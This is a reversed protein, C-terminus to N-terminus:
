AVVMGAFVVRVRQSLNQKSLCTYFEMLMVTRYEMFMVKRRFSELRPNKRLVYWYESVRTHQVCRHCLVPTREASQACRRDVERLILGSSTCSRRLAPSPSSGCRRHFYPPHSRARPGFRSSSRRVGLNDPYSSDRDNICNHVVWIKQNLKSRWVQCPKFAKCSLSVHNGYYLFDDISIISWLPLTKV